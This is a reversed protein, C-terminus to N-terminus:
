WVSRPYHQQITTDATVLPAMGRAYANAVIMRDFPDRTWGVHLAAIRGIEGLPLDCVALGLSSIVLEAAPGQVRGIERLYELELLAMGSVLVVGAQDIACSALKTLKKRQGQALWVLIQTDLYVHTLAVTRGM